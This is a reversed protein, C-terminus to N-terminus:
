PPPPARMAALEAEIEAARREAIPRWYGENAERYVEAAGRMDGLAEAMRAPDHTRQALLALTNALNYNTGAWDLPVRERTREELAARYSHVADELRATGSEREGLRKLANGLNNQTAAWVLPVRERTYEELAASYAAVAEELRATGGEREGLTQLAGGLNNQTMAWGLPERERTREELAASYAAVAEELRATGSERAGLRQLANGLNNQTAAWDLPVRERTFEELAARYARVAEQLRAMGGEREGLVKLANGFNNQTMAWDLPVRERTREELAARYAAVAQELRATGSEREGLTQLANGLNNQTMAWDLPVGDRPALRLVDDYAAIADGLAANDGFEDGQQYLVDAQRLRYGWAAKDDFAVAEAAKAYFGAAERYRLQLESVRGREALLAARGRARGQDETEVKALAADLTQAAEAFKLEAAQAQAETLARRVAGSFDEARAAPKQLDELIRKVLGPLQEAPFVDIEPNGPRLLDRIAAVAQVAPAGGAAADIVLRELRKQAAMAEAHRAEARAAEQEQATRLAETDRKVADLKVDIIGLRDQLREVAPILDALVGREDGVSEQLGIMVLSLVATLSCFILFSFALKTSIARYKMAILLSVLLFLAAVAVWVTCLPIVPKLFDSAFVFLATTTHAWHTSREFGEKLLQLREHHLTRRLSAAFRGIWTPSIPDTALPARDVPLADTALTRAPEDTVPADHSTLAEQDHQV